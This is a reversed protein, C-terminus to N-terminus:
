VEVKDGSQEKRILLGDVGLDTLVKYWEQQATVPFTGSTALEIEVRAEAAQTASVRCLAVIVLAVIMMPRM